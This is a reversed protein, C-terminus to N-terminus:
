AVARKSTGYLRCLNNKGTKCTPYLLSAKWSSHFPITGPLEELFRPNVPLHWYTKMNVIRIYWHKNGGNSWWTTWGLPFIPKNNEHKKQASPTINYINRAFFFFSQPFFFLQFGMSSCQLLISHTQTKKFCSFQDIKTSVATSSFFIRSKHATHMITFWGLATTYSPIHFFKLLQCFNTNSPLSSLVAQSVSFNSSASLRNLINLKM